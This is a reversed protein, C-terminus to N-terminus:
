NELTIDEGTLTVTLTLVEKGTLERSRADPQQGGIYVTYTGAHVQRSGDEHIVSFAKAPLEVTVTTEEGQRIYVSDYFKLEYKPLELGPYTAAVYAQAVEWSDYHGVNKVTVPVTVTDGVAATVATTDCAYDFSTYSLGYGFPYLADQEMFRYTRGKMSYDEFPPLEETTKYFTIPLRGAPSEEGFLIQALAIGGQEGPYFADIVANSVEDADGIAMASGAMLVTVLPKGTAAMAQVLKQQPPPLELYPKDGSGYANHADGQEGELGADLGVCLIIVDAREAVSIAGNLRGGEEWPNEITVHRCGASYAIPYDEGLYYRLGELPTYSHSPTGNYNGLLVGKHDANPGVLAIKVGKKLPLIGDNKLLTMTRRAIERNFNRHERSAVIEFPLESYPVGAPDDFMGLKFRARLVRRLEVDLDCEEVLGEKLSQLLHKYVGGCNLDCGGKVGAAASEQINSTFHHNAHFDNIAGCDSVVHGEFGWRKRLIDSLLQTSCNCPQGNVANYAGMVSEVKGEKVCMEFAPLYTEFLDKDSIDVNFEHRLH